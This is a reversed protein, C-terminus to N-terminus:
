QCYFTLLAFMPHCGIAHHEYLTELFSTLQKM